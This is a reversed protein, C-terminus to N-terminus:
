HTAQLLVIFTRPSLKMGDERGCAHCTDWVGRRGGTAWKVRRHLAGTRPAGAGWSLISAM